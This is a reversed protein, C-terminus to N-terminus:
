IYIMNKYLLFLAKKSTTACSPVIRYEPAVRVGKM